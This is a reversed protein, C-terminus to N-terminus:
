AAGDGRMLWRAERARAGEQPALVAVAGVKGLRQEHQPLEREGAEHEENGLGVREASQEGGDEDGDEREGGDHQEVWEAHVLVVQQLHRRLQHQQQEEEAPQEHALAVARGLEAEHRCTGQCRVSMRELGDVTGAVMTPKM